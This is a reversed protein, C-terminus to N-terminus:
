YINLITRYTRSFSLDLKLELFNSRQLQKMKKKYRCYLCHPPPLVPPPSTVSVNQSNPPSYFDCLAERQTFMTSQHHWPQCSGFNQSSTIAHCSQSLSLHWQCQETSDPQPPPLKVDQYGCDALWETPSIKFWTLYGSIAKRSCGKM